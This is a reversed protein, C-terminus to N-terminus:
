PGGMCKVRCYDYALANYLVQWKEYFSFLNVMTPYLLPITRYTSPTISVKQKNNWGQLVSPAEGCKAAFKTSELLEQVDEYKDQNVGTGIVNDFLTAVVQINCM